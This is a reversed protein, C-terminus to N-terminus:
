INEEIFETILKFIEDSWFPGEHPADEVKIFSVNAGKGRLAHYLDNGQKFPILMDADGHCILVPPLNKANDFSLNKAIITPSMESLVSMEEDIEGGSLARFIEKIGEDFNEDKMSEVLDSPPFCSVCFNVKDSFGEHEKSIYKERGITMATLLALNGGSSTGFIGVREGDIGFDKAHRRLFRIATKVDELCAPFPHGEMSNRHTITAVVYGKKAIACLQPVETWVNPFTWASGQVFIVLPYSPITEKMRDWWPSIIQMKLNHKESFVIDPIVEVMGEMSPNSKIIKEYSM